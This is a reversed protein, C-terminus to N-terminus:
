MSRIYVLATGDLCVEKDQNIITTKLRVVPKDERLSTVEVAATITDGICVAKRFNWNVTLFVSGEGPLDHAVIANFLGTIVGGQVIPAKHGLRRALAEDYHLVQRDGTLESFLEVDHKTMKKTRTAKQGVTIKKM